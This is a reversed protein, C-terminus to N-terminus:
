IQDGKPSGNKSKKDQKYKESFRPMVKQDIAESVFVMARQAAMRKLEAMFLSSFGTGYNGSPTNNGKSKKRGTIGVLFGIAISLGIATYPRKRINKM